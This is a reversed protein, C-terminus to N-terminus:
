SQKAGGRPDKAIEALQRYERWSLACVGRPVSAIRHAWLNALLTVRPGSPCRIIPAVAHHLSGGFTVLRGARQPVIVPASSRRLIRRWTAVVFRPHAGGDRSTPYGLDFMTEGGVLGTAPGLHLIAGALPSRTRGTRRRLAEDNDVHLYAVDDGARSVGLWTEFGLGARSVDSPLSALVRTLYLAIFRASAFPMYRALREALTGDDLDRRPAFFFGPPIVLERFVAYAGEVLAPAIADDTVTIQRSVPVKM